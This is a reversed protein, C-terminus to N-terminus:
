IAAGIVTFTTTRSSPTHTLVCTATAKDGIAAAAVTYGTPLANAALLAGADDCNDIDVFSDNSLGAENAIDVAHNLSSASSVSGGINNLTAIQAESTLDIFKPIAVAAIIGLIVVVVILEILTFGSEQKNKFNKM